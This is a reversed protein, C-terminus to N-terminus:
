QARLWGASLGVEVMRRHERRAAELDAHFNVESRAGGPDLGHGFLDAYTSPRPVTHALTVKVLGELCDPCSLVVEELKM